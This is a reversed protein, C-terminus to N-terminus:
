LCRKPEVKATSAALCRAPRWPSSSSPRLPSNTLQDYMSDAQKNANEIEEDTFSLGLEEMYNRYVINKKLSEMATDKMWQAADKEEIQKDFVASPDQGTYAYTYAQGYYADFLYSLYVGASITEDGSKVM